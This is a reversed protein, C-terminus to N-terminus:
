PTAESDFRRQWTPDRFVALVRELEGEVRAVLDAAGDVRKAVAREELEASAAHLSAAGLLGASGKLSHAVREVTTADRAAAARRLEALRGPAEEVFIAVLERLLQRDGGVWHLARALDVSAGEM